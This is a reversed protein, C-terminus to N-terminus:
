SENIIDNVMSKLEYRVVCLDDTDVLGAHGEAHDGMGRLRWGYDRKDAEAYIKGTGAITATMSTVEGNVRDGYIIEIKM